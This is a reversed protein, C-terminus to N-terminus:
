LRTRRGHQYHGARSREGKGRSAGEDKVLCGSEAPQLTDRIEREDFFGGSETQREREGARETDTPPRNSRSTAIAGCM